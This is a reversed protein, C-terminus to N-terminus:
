CHLQVYPAPAAVWGIYGVNNLCISNEGSFLIYKNAWIGMFLNLIVHFIRQNKYSASSPLLAALETKNAPIVLVYETKRKMRSHTMPAASETSVGLLGEGWVGGGAGGLPAWLTGLGASFCLGELM